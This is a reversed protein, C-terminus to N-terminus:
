KKKSREADDLAVIDKSAQWLQIINMLQKYAMVPFSILIALRVLTITNDPGMKMYDSVFPALPGIPVYPGEWNHLLYLMIFFSENGWCLFGLLFRNTYYLKLLANSGKPINKHSSAGRSLSSSSAIIIFQLIQHIIAQLYPCLSQSYRHRHSILVLELLRSLNAGFRSDFL